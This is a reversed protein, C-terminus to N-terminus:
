HLKIVQSNKREWVSERLQAENTKNSVEGCKHYHLNLYKCAGISLGELSDTTSTGARHVVYYYFVLLVEVQPMPWSM